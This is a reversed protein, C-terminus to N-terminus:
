KDCLINGFVKKLQKTDIIRVKFCCQYQFVKVFNLHQSVYLFVVINLIICIMVILLFSVHQVHGGSNM